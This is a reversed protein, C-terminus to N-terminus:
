KGMIKWHGTKDSGIREIIEQEKLEKIKRKATSLSINLREGIETAKIKSNQKILNFLTDNVTDNQAKVTDNVTDNQIKVTDAFHVHIERNILIHNEGLLLNGFKQKKQKTQNLYNFLIKKNCFLLM